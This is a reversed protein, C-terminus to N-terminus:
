CLTVGKRTYDKVNNIMGKARMIKLCEVCTVQNISTAHSHSHEGCMALFTRGSEHRQHKIRM